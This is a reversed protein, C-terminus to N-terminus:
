SQSRHWQEFLARKENKRRTIAAADLNCFEIVFEIAAAVDAVEEIMRQELDSGDWHDTQGNTGMLKGIVQVVEGCEEAM